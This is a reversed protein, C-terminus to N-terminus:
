KVIKKYMVLKSGIEHFNTIIKSLGILSLEYKGISAKSANEYDIKLSIPQKSEIIENQIDKDIHEISNRVKEIPKLYANVLKKLIKDEIFPNEKIKKIRDFLNFLRKTTNICNELHNVALFYYYITNNDSNIQNIINERALSYEFISKDVLRVFIKRYSILKKDLYRDRGGIISIVFSMTLKDKILNNKLKPMKCEKFISM